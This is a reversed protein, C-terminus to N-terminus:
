IIKKIFKFYKFPVYKFPIDIWTPTTVIARQNSFALFSGHGHYKGLGSNGVGGFPLNHNTIHMLTDNICGGGSTTKALVEKAKKNKGFYYFALPKENKNIYSIAENVDEFDMVPLIPGFIEDQMILDDPMVDDIITPSIYREKNDIEGGSHIKGKSLLGELRTMARDNVIRPYFRSQKINDGYMNKLNSAIKDLLEAKISKHAFLYDPAICTQGANILKGWAIRKAAVDINADADVICPRKGGLELVVPTLFESAAKMVVKGVKPSGTFFIIDFRQKFLITNVERGGQVVSIYNSDFTEAIMNEMVKAITPTDPSPKLVTCCGSSIVGVLSNILLHFPYNWPAVILAVGLPEYIIKSSSPLIHWPTSVRKPKAWKRLHKIHNDIEQNVISIETLYSEEPSKHM